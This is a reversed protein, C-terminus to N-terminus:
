SQLMFTDMLAHYCVETFLKLERRGKWGDFLSIIGSKFLMRFIDNFCRTMCDINVGRTDRRLCRKLGVGGDLLVM